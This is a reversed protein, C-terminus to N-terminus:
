YSAYFFVGDELPIPFKVLKFERNIMHILCIPLRLYGACRYDNWEYKDYLEALVFGALDFDKRRYLLLDSRCIYYEAASESGDKENQKAPNTEILTKKVCFPILEKYLELDEPDNARFALDEYDDIEEPKHLDSLYTFDEANPKTIKNIVVDLGM